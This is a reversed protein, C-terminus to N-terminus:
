FDRHKFVGDRFMKLWQKQPDKEYRNNYLKTIIEEAEIESLDNISQMIDSKMQTTLSTLDINCEITLWQSNTIESPKGDFLEDIDDNSLSM